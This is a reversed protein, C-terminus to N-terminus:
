KQWWKLERGEDDSENCHPVVPGPKPSPRVELVLLARCIEAQRAELRRRASSGAPLRRIREVLGARRVELEVEQPSLSRSSM